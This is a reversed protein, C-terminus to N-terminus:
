LILLAGFVVVYMPVYLLERARSLKLLAFEVLMPFVIVALASVQFLISVTLLELM